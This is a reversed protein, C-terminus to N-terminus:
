RDEGEISNSDQTSTTTTLSDPTLELGDFVDSGESEDETEVGDQEEQDDEETVGNQM